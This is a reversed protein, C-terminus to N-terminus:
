NQLVGYCPKQPFLSKVAFGILAWGFGIGELMPSAKGFVSVGFLQLYLFVQSRYPVVLICTFIHWFRFVSLPGGLNYVDKALLLYYQGVSVHQYGKGKRWCIRKRKKGPKNTSHAACSSGTNPDLDPGLLKTKCSGEPGKPIM